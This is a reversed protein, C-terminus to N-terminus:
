LTCGLQFTKKINRIRPIFSAAVGLTTITLIATVTMPVKPFLM